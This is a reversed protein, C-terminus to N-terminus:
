IAAVKKPDVKVGEGISIIFRLYKVEKAAFKYKNIDLCLSAERLCTVVKYVKEIYDIYSSDLYILMDDIYISYFIDLFKSLTSNIYCQFTTPAGTLGFLIVM